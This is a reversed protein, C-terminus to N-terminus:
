SLYSYANNFDYQCSPHFFCCFCVYMVFWWSKVNWKVLLFRGGFFWKIQKKGNKGSIETVFLIAQHNWGMATENWRVWWAVRAARTSSGHKRAVGTSSGDRRGEKTNFASPVPQTPNSIFWCFGHANRSDQCPLWPLPLISFIRGLHKEPAWSFNDLFIDVDTYDLYTYNWHMWNIGYNWRWCKGLWWVWGVDWRQCVVIRGLLQLEVRWQANDMNEALQVQQLRWPSINVEASYGRCLKVLSWFWWCNFAM